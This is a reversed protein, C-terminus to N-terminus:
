AGAISICVKGFHAGSALYDFAARTESLSFVRDVVPELGNQAVARCLAELHERHGVIVGQLRIQQMLVPLLNLEPATGALVGIISVTGGPQNTSGVEKGQYFLHGSFNNEEAAQGKFWM